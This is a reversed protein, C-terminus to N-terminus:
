SSAHVYKSEHPLVLQDLILLRGSTYKIAELTRHDDVTTSVMDTNYDEEVSHDKGYSKTSSDGPLLSPFTGEEPGCSDVM